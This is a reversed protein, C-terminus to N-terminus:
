KNQLADILMETDQARDHSGLVVVIHGDDLATIMCGLANDTYGTKSGRVGNLGEQVIPNNSVLHHPTKEDVSYVTDAKESLVEWIKEHRLSYSALLALDFATTYHDDADLGSSNAFHTDNMGLERAKENMRAVLDDGKTTFHDAFAAAADNSSVILMMKMLDDARFREGALVRGAVGETAVAHDTITVIENEPIQEMVIVATMVKTLSAPARREHSNKEYRTEVPMGGRATIYASASLSDLLFLPADHEDEALVAEIPPEVVEHISESSTAIVTADDDTLVAADSGAGNEEERIGPDSVNNETLTAIADRMVAPQAAALVGAKGDPSFMVSRLTIGFVFVGLVIAAIRMSEISFIDATEIANRIRQFLTM